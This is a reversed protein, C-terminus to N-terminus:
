KTPTPISVKVRTKNLMCNRLVSMPGRTVEEMRTLVNRQIRGRGRGMVPETECIFLLFLCSYFCILYYSLFLSLYIFEYISLYTYPPLALSCTQIQLMLLERETSYSVRNMCRRDCAFYALYSFVLLLYSLLLYSNKREPLCWFGQSNLFRLPEISYSQCSM